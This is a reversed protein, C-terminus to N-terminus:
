SSTVMMLGRVSLVIEMRLKRRASSGACLQFSPNSAAWYVYLDATEEENARRDDFCWVFPLITLHNLFSLNGSVIIALQFATQIGGGLM